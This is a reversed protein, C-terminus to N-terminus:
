NSGQDSSWDAADESSQDSGSCGEGAGDSLMLFHGDELFLGPRPGGDFLLADVGVGIASSGRAVADSVVASVLVESAVRM